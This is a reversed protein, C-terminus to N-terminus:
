LPSRHAVFDAATAPVDASAAASFAAVDSGSDENDAVDVEDGYGRADGAVAAAPSMRYSRHRSHPM